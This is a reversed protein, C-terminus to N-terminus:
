RRACAPLTGDVRAVCEEPRMATTDLALVNDHWPFTRVMEAVREETLDLRVDDGGRERFRAVATAEDVRCEVWLLRAGTRAAIREIEDRDEPHAYNADLIAGPGYRELLDAAYHMARYAAARDARTHMSDPLIRARTVDMSLHPMGRRKALGGAM